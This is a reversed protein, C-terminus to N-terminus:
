ITLLRLPETNDGTYNKCPNFIPYLKETFTDTFTHLHSMDEVDYFSVRGGEYDLYVGLKQPKVKLQSIVDPINLSKCEPLRGIVWYGNDPSRTINEKRNISERCVGVIWYPKKGLDVEWYHRGSSFSQSSLVYCYKAFREPKDPLDQEEDGFKVGTLDQSISLLNNATEPDLTLSEPVPSIVARMERWVNIYKFPEDVIDAPLQTSAAGPNHFEMQSRKLLVQIDKLLAPAEQVELRSELGIIAGELSSMEELTKKLNKEMEELIKNSKRELEAKMLEEKEFLFKHMKEFESNIENRLSDVQAKMQLIGEEGERKSQLSLDMQKQLFELSKELKNKYKQVAEKIHLDKHTQHGSSWCDVCIAKQEEECFLKLKEEHEQCYFVEDPQTVKVKLLRFTEVINGLTRATRINRQTFVQRCQPCSVDGPVKDWSQSICSRCFHHECELSVPDTFTELCIPCTLEYTLDASAM